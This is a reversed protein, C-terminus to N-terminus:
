SYRGVRLGRLFHPERPWWAEVGEEGEEEETQQGQGLGAIAGPNDKVVDALKGSSDRVCVHNDRDVETDSGLVGDSKPLVKM